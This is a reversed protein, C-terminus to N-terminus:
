ARGGWSKNEGKPKEKGKKNKSEFVKKKVSIGSKQKEDLSWKQKKQKRASGFFLGRGEWFILPPGFNNKKQEDTRGTGGEL